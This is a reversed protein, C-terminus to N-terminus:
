ALECTGIFRVLLEPVAGPWVLKEALVAIPQTTKMVGAFAFNAALLVQVVWLAVNPAKSPRQTETRTVTAAYSMVQGGDLMQPVAHQQQTHLVLGIFQLM